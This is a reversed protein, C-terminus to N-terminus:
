KLLWVMLRHPLNIIKNKLAEIDTIKIM